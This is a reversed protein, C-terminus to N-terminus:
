KALLIELLNGDSDLFNTVFGYSVEKKDRLIKIGLQKLKETMQDLERMDQAKFQLLLQDQRKIGLLKEVESRNSLPEIAFITGETAFGYWNKPQDEELPDMGISKYFAILRSNNESFLNINSIQHFSM